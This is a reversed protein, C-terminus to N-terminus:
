IGNTIYEELYNRCTMGAGIEEERSGGNEKGTFPRRIMHMIEEVTKNKFPFSTEGDLSRPVYSPDRVYCEGLTAVILSWCPPPCEDNLGVDKGFVCPANSRVPGIGTILARAAVHYFSSSWCTGEVSPVLSSWTTLAIVMFLHLMNQLHLFHPFFM